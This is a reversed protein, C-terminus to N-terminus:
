DWVDGEPGRAMVSRKRHTQLKGTRPTIVTEDQAGGSRKEAAGPSAATVEIPVNEEPVNDQHSFEGGLTRAM